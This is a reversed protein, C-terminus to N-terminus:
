KQSSVFACQENMEKTLSTDKGLTLYAFRQAHCYRMVIFVIKAATARVGRHMGTALLSFLTQLLLM